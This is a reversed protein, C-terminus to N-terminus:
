IPRNEPVSEDAIFRGIGLYKQFKQAVTINQPWFNGSAERSIAGEKPKKVQWTGHAVSLYNVIPLAPTM